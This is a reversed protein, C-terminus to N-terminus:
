APAPHGLVAFRFTRGSKAGPDHHQRVLRALCTALEEAFANQAAADPFRVDAQITLTPLQKGARAARERLDVVAADQFTLYGSLRGTVTTTGPGHLQGLEGVVSTVLLSTDVTLTGELTVVGASATTGELM